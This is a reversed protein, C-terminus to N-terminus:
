YNECSDILVCNCDILLEKRGYRETLSEIALPYNEDTIPFSELKQSLKQRSFGKKYEELETRAREYIQQAFAVDDPKRFGADISALVGKLDNGAIELRNQLFAIRQNMKSLAACRDADDAISQGDFTAFVPVTNLIPYPESFFWEGIYAARRVGDRDEGDHQLSQLDPTQPKM